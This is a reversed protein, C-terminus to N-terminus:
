VVWQDRLRKGACKRGLLGTSRGLALKLVSVQGELARVRELMASQQESDAIQKLARARQRLRGFAGHKIQHTAATLAQSRKVACVLRDVEDRQARQLRLVQAACRSVATVGSWVKFGQALLVGCLGTVRSCFLDRRLLRVQTHQQQSTHESSQLESCLAISDAEARAEASQLEKRLSNLQTHSEATAAERAEREAQLQACLDRIRGNLKQVLEDRHQLERAALEQEDRARQQLARIAEKQLNLTMPSDAVSGRPLTAEAPTPMHSSINRAKLQALVSSMDTVPSAVVQTAAEETNGEPVLAPPTFLVKTDLMSKSPPPRDRICM